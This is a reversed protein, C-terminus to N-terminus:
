MLKVSDYIKGSKVSIGTGDINNIVSKIELIFSHEVGNFNYFTGNKNKFKIDLRDLKDIIGNFTNPTDINSNYLITGPLDCLNIKAFFKPITGNNDIKNLQDIEMIVYNEGSLQLSNNGTKTENEYNEVNTHVSSFTTIATENGTDRFGLISGITDNYDFRLKFLDPIFLILANGGKSNNRVTSAVNLRPLEIQFNDSDDVVKVLHTNNLISPNIGLHEIAGTIRIQTGIETIGHNPINFKLLFKTGPSFSDLSPNINIPPNVSVIPQSIEFKKFASLTVVNTNQNINMTIINQSSYDNSINIRITKSILLEITSTLQEPTYNGQPIAISYVYDNDNINQWYLKNNIGESIIPQTNPFDISLLRTSIINSYPKEFNIKYNNNNPSGEITEIIKQVRSNIGGGREDILAPINLQISYGNNNTDVIKHYPNNASNVIQKIPIGGISLFSINYNYTTLLYSQRLIRPLIIFFHSNSASLYDSPYSSLDYDNNLDDVNLSLRIPFVNNILNVPINGLFSANLNPGNDGKIGSISIIIDKGAYNLPFSHNDFIKMFNCNVPIEFSKVNNNDYSRIIHKVPIIDSIVINDGNVFTHNEHYVFVKTSNKNFDFPDQTLKISESYKYETNKKRNSSDINVYQTILTESSIKTDYKLGNQKLYESYFDYNDRKFLQQNNHPQKIKKNINLIKPKSYNVTTNLYTPKVQSKTTKSYKMIVIICVM